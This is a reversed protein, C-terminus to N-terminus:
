HQLQCCFLDEGFLDNFSCSAYGHGPEREVDKPPPETEGHEPQLAPPLLMVASSDIPAAARGGRMGEGLLMADATHDDPVNRVQAQENKVHYHHAEDAEGHEVIEEEDELVQGLDEDVHSNAM